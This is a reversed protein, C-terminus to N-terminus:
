CLPQWTIYATTGCVSSPALLPRSPNGKPPGFRHRIGNCLHSVASTYGDRFQSSRAGSSFTSNKAPQKFFCKEGLGALFVSNIFWTWYSIYWIRMIGIVASSSGMERTSTESRNFQLGSLRRARVNNIIGGKWTKGFSSLQEQNIQFPLLGSRDHYRLWTLVSRSRRTRSWRSLRSTSIAWCNPKRPKVVRSNSLNTSDTVSALQWPLCAVANM